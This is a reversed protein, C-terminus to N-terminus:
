EGYGEEEVREVAEVRTVSDPLPYIHIVDVWSANALTIISSIVNKYNLLLLSKLHCCIAPM